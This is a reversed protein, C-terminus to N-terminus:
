HIEVLLADGIWIVARSMVLLEGNSYVSAVAPTAQDISGAPTARM